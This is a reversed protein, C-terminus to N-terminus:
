RLSRPLIGIARMLSILGLTRTFKFVLIYLACLRSGVISPHLFHIYCFSKTNWHQISHLDMILLFCSASRYNQKDLFYLVCNVWYILMKKRLIGIHTLQLFFLLLFFNQSNSQHIFCSFSFSVCFFFAVFNTVLCWTGALAKAHCRDEHAHGEEKATLILTILKCLLM